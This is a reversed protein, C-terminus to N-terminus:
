GRFSPGLVDQWCEIARGRTTAFRAESIAELADQAVSVLKQRHSDDYVAAVNNAENVPDFIEMPKGTPGPLSSAPYYDTFFIRAQLRSNVIYGFIKELAITYDAMRVGSDNLHSIIMETMFSKMRFEEDKSKQLRVWWKVLRIVQAFHTLQQAKRKRIFRLHLPISTLVREGGDSDFLYGRDDPAGDYQVPVVDVSLGSVAYKICVSHKNPTIQDPNMQPYAERLREALWNLLDPEARPAKEAKVYFAVDIDNLTKLATGKALSGSLLTKILGYNPHDAALKDLKERLRGVQERYAKADERKLNVSDDAFAAIDAHGIQPASFPTEAARTELTSM